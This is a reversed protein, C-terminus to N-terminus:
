DGVNIRVQGTDSRALRIEEEKLMNDLKKEVIAEMQQQIDLPLRQQAEDTAQADKAAKAQSAQAKAQESKILALQVPDPQQPPIAEAEEQTPEVDGSAILRRRVRKEFEDADPIDLNKVILDAGVEALVPILGTAEILDRVAQRKQTAFAPGITVKVNYRGASLDMKRSKAEDYANIKVFEEQGDLGLIRVTRETDYVKPIMDILIEGTFELAKTLNDMFEFSGVDGQRQRARIAEGSEQPGQEGMAPEFFGNTARIDDADMTALSILAAPVQAGSIREPRIGPALPDPNYTLVPKNKANADAWETEKGTIMKDTVLWQARPTNAVVETMTTRSFNYVRQADHSHRILSQSLHEGEINIFRGCMKVVPIFQWDYEIPGELIQAGDIKWWTVKSARAERIKEKGESDKAIVPLPAFDQDDSRKENEGAAEKLAAEVEKTLEVTRGDTLLAIKKDVPDRRFYEAVRLQDREFWGRNDRPVGISQAKDAKDDGFLARHREKSIREAILCKNQDRKRPDQAVPDWFVTFPNYVPKIFIEQDFSRDSAFQPLIRWAGWGGAVAHKFAMDYATQADSMDEINRILGSFVEALEPDSDGDTGRIKIQPTAQRQDGIVQNVAGILRNFVYCPRNGRERVTEQDWHTDDRYVMHLDERMRERELSDAGNSNKMFEKVERILDAEDHPPGVQDNHESGHKSGNHKSM